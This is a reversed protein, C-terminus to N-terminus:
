VRPRRLIDVVCHAITAGTGVVRNQGDTVTSAIWHDEGEGNMEIRDWKLVGGYYLEATMVLIGCGAAYLAALLIVGSFVVALCAAFIVAWGMAFTLVDSM